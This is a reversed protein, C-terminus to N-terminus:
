LNFEKIENDYFSIFNIYDDYQMHMCACYLIKNYTIDHHEYTLTNADKNYIQDNLFAVHTYDIINPLFTEASTRNKIPIKHVFDIDINNINIFDLLRKPNIWHFSGTYMWTYKTITTNHHNNYITGYCIYDKFDDRSTDLLKGIVEYLYELNMYYMLSIWIKTNELNENTLGKTHGFFILDDNIAYEDLKDIVYKVYVKGERLYSDNQEIIFNIYNVNLIDQIYQKHMNIADINNLDDIVLIMDINNFIYAYKRLLYLHLKHIYTLEGNPTIYYSFILRLKNNM